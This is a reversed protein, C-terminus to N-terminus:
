QLYIENWMSEYFFQHFVLMSHILVIHSFYQATFLWLDVVRAHGTEVCNDWTKSGKTIIRIYLSKCLPLYIKLDYVYLIM